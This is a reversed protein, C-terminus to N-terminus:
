SFIGDFLLVLALLVVGVLGGQQGCWFQNTICTGNHQKKLANFCLYDETSVIM